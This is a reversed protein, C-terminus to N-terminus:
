LLEIKWDIKTPTQRRQREWGVGRWGCTDREKRVCLCVNSVHFHDFHKRKKMRKCGVCIRELVFDGLSFTMLPDLPDETLFSM